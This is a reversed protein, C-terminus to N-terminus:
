QKKDFHVTALIAQLRRHVSDLQQTSIDRAGAGADGGCFTNIILDFRYCAGNRQTTYIDDRAETCVGGHEDYGHTFPVGDITSPPIAEPSHLTAERNCDAPLSHPTQSFYFFAGSFTTEPFPNFAISALARMQSSRPATRADLSFTSVEGDKRNLNWGAPVQFSIGLRSDHFSSAAPPRPSTPANAQTQGPLTTAALGLLVLTAFLRTDFTM